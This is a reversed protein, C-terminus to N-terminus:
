RGAAWTAASAPPRRRHPWRTTRALRTRSQGAPPLVGGWPEGNRPRDWCRGM